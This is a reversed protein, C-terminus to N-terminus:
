RSPPRRRREIASWAPGELQVCKLCRSGLRDCLSSASCPRLLPMLPMLSVPRGIRSWWRLLACHQRATDIRLYVRLSRLAKGCSAMVSDSFRMTVVPFCTRWFGQVARPVRRQNVLSGLQAGIQTAPATGQFLVCAVDAGRLAGRTKLHSQRVCAILEVVLLPTM